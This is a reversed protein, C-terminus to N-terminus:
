DGVQVTVPEANVAEASGPGSRGTARITVTGRGLLEAPVEITAEAASTRGLVRGAAHILAASIGTGSVRVRVSGQPTVRRPEVAVALSRGHNAFQVPVIRRGQTEIPGADIAVLRLDHHGDAFVATDLPLRQGPGCQAVRAGDLFLEFRDARGDNAVTVRPEFEVKGSLPANDALPKGTAADIVEVRPVVAWPQCLPDGVVLLQYPSHVSQFFAEALSAGRAYHLLLGPHPFKAQHAQPQTAANGNPLMVFPEVVTGCAGAAGARIFHSLPTQGAGPTFVAGFSTLNDCIAGPLLRANSSDWDFDPTGTMLGAVNRRGAPLIGPLIEAQAGAAEIAKVTGKVPNFRAKTRVDANTMFYLTGPPRTGDAAAASRLAAVVEAVTNGRGATVGLMTSLLYRNGGVELLDGRDSWGYWSRFGVTTPPAGDAGLPRFYDNSEPDLWAPQGSQVTGYLMTMGTLSASPFKLAPVKALEAPLEAAFDIRWPFGSSYVVYDIQPALGRAEITRLVPLLIDGRFRDITTSEDGAKWPLMFVNLAPIARLEIFANAIALSDASAPNVVLLLNEPGGGARAPAPPLLGPIPLLLAVILLRRATIWLRGGRNRLRCGIPRTTM